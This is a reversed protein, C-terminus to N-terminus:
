KGKVLGHLQTESVRFNSKLTMEENFHNCGFVDNLVDTKTLNYDHM